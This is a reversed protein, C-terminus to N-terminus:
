HVGKGKNAAGGKMVGSVVRIRQYLERRGYRCASWVSPTIRVGYSQVAELRKDSRRERILYSTPHNEEAMVGGPAEVADDRHINWELEIFRAPGYSDANRRGAERGPTSISGASTRNYEIGQMAM